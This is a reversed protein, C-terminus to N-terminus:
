VRKFKAEEPLEDILAQIDLTNVFSGDIKEIFPKMFSTDVLSGLSSIIEIVDNKSTVYIPANWIKVDSNDLDFFNLDCVNLPECGKSDDLSKEAVAIMLCAYNKGLVLIRNSKRGFKRVGNVIEKNIKSCLKNYALKLAKKKNNENIFKDEKM